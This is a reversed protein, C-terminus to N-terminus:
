SCPICNCAAEAAGAPNESSEAKRTVMIPTLDLCIPCRCQLAWTDRGGAEQLKNQISAAAWSSHCSIHVVHLLCPLIQVDDLGSNGDRLPENCVVCESPQEPMLARMEASLRRREDVASKPLIKMLNARGVCRARWDSPRKQDERKIIDAILERQQQREGLWGLLAARVAFLETRNTEYYEAGPRHPAAAAVATASPTAPAAAAAAAATAAAEGHAKLTGDIQALEALMRRGYDSPHIGVPSKVEDTPLKFTTMCSAMQSVVRGRLVDDQLAEAYQKACNLDALILDHTDEPARLLPYGLALSAKHSYLNACECYYRPMVAPPFAKWLQAQELLAFAEKLAEKASHGSQEALHCDVLRCLLALESLAALSRCHAHNELLRWRRAADAAARLAAKGAQRAEATSAGRAEARKQDWHAAAAILQSQKKFPEELVLTDVAEKKWPEVIIDRPVALSSSSAPKSHVGDVTVRCRLGGELWEVVRGLDAEVKFGGRPLLVLEPNIAVRTSVAMTPLANEFKVAIISDDALRVAMRGEAPKPAVCNAVITANTGNLHSASKLDRLTVIANGTAAREAFIKASAKSRAVQLAAIQQDLEM